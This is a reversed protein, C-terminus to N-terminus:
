HTLLIRRVVGHTIIGSISKSGSRSDRDSHFLYTTQIDTAIEGLLQMANLYQLLRLRNGSVTLDGCLVALLLSEGDVLERWTEHTGRFVIGADREEPDDLISVETCNGDELGILVYITDGVINDDLQRLLERTRSPLLWRLPADIAASAESLSLDAVHDQLVGPLGELAEPPLDGITTEDLPIDTIVILLDGNFGVGWGASAADLESSETLRRKYESLWQETPFLVM